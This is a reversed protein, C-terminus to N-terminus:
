AGIQNRWSRRGPSTEGRGVHGGPQGMEPCAGRPGGRSAPIIGREHNAAGHSDWKPVVRSGRTAGSGTGHMVIGLVGDLPWGLVRRNRAHRGMRAGVATVSRPGQAFVHDRGRRSGPRAGGSRPRREAVARDRQRLDRRRVSQPYDPDRRRRRGGEERISTGISAGNRSPQDLPSRTAADTTVVRSQSRAVGPHNRDALGCTRRDPHERRLESQTGTHLAAWPEAGTERRTGARWVTM